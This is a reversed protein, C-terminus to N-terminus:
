TAQKQGTPHSCISGAQTQFAPSGQTKEEKETLLAEKPTAAAREGQFECM